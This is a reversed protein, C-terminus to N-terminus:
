RLLRGDSKFLSEFKPDFSTIVADNARGRCGDGIKIAVGVVQGHYFVVSLREATYIEVDGRAIM